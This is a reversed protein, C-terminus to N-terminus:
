AHSDNAPDTGEKCVKEWFFLVGQVLGAREASLPRIEGKMALEAVLIEAVAVPKREIM